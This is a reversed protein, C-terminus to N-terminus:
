RMSFLLNLFALSDSFRAEMSVCNNYGFRPNLYLTKQPSKWLIKHEESGMMVIKQPTAPRVAGGPFVASEM